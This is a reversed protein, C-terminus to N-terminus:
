PRGSLWLARQTVGLRALRLTNAEPKRYIMLLDAKLHCERYGAWDGALQHDRFAKPLVGGMLLLAVVTGLLRELEGGHRPTAKARKYDRKFATSREITRM